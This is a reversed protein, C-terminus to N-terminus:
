EEKEKRKRKMKERIIQEAGKDGNRDGIGRMGEWVM